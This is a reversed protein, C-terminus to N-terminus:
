AAVAEHRPFRDAIVDGTYHAVWGAPDIYLRIVTFDPAAGMDFWHRMGAPVSILDGATCLVTFVKDDSHLTFLGEGEVFFRVEDESHRHESLFKTRLAERDPHDPLVRMVDVAQYGEAAKLQEVEPAFAKLVEAQGADAALARAPWQEFRVGIPALADAIAEPDSSDFEPATGDSVAFIRLRSM